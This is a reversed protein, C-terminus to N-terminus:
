LEEQQDIKEKLLKKWRSTKAQKENRQIHNKIDEFDEQEAKDLVDWVFKSLDEVAACKSVVKKDHM